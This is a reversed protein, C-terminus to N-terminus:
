ATDKTEFGALDRKIKEVALEARATQKRHRDLKSQASALDQRLEEQRAKSRSNAAAGIRIADVVGRERGCDPCSAVSSSWYTHSPHQKAVVTHDCTLTLSWEDLQRPTSRISALIGAIADIQAQSLPPPPCCDMCHQTRSGSVTWRGRGCDSHLRSYEHEEAEREARQQDTGHMLPVRSGLGDLIPRGCGRCPEGAELEERTLRLRDREWRQRIQERREYDQEARLAKEKARARARLARQDETLKAM